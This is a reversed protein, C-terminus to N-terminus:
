MPCTNASDLMNTRSRIHLNVPTACSSSQVNGLFQSLKSFPQSFSSLRKGSVLNPKAFFMSEWSRKHSVLNSYQLIMGIDSKKHWTNRLFSAFDM